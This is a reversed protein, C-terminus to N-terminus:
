PGLAQREREEHSVGSHWLINQRRSVSFTLTHDCTDNLTDRKSRSRNILSPQMAGSISGKVNGSLTTRETLFGAEATNSWFFFLFLRLNWPRVCLLTKAHWQSRHNRRQLLYLCLCVEKGKQACGQLAWSCTTPHHNAEQWMFGTLLELQHLTWSPYRVSGVKLSHIGM